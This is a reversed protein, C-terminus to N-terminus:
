IVYRVPDRVISSRELDRNNKKEKLAVKTKSKTKSKSCPDKIDLIM